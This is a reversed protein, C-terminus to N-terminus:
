FSAQRKEKRRPSGIISRHDFGVTVTSSYHLLLKHLLTLLPFILIRFNVVSKVYLVTNKPYLRTMLLGGRVMFIGLFVFFFALGLHNNKLKGASGFETFYQASTKKATPKGCLFKAMSRKSFRDAWVVTRSTTVLLTRLFVHGESKRSCVVWGCVVLGVKKDGIKPGGGGGGSTHTYLYQGSVWVKKDM